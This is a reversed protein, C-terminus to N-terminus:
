DAGDSALMVVVVDDDDDLLLRELWDHSTRQPAPASQLQLAFPAQASFCTVIGEMPSGHAEPVLDSVTAAENERCSLMQVNWRRVVMPVALFRMRRAAHASTAIRHAVDAAELLFRRLCLVVAWSSTSLHAAM